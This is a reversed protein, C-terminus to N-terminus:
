FRFGIGANLQLNHTTNYGGIISSRIITDSLDFRILTRPSVYFETVGGLDFAFNTKSLSCDGSDVCAFDLRRSHYIFGPRAKGFFGFRGRRGGAKVGLLGLTKRGSVTQDGEHSRPYFDVEAEVAFNDNFNYGLRSGVGPELVRDGYDEYHFMSFHVGVEFKRESATPTRPSPVPPGILKPPHETQAAM